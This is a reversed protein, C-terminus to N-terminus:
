LLNRSAKAMPLGVKGSIQELEWTWFNGSELQELKTNTEVWWKSTDGRTVVLVFLDCTSIGLYVIPSLADYFIKVLVWALVLFAMSGIHVGTCFWEQTYNPNIVPDGLLRIWWVPLPFVGWFGAWLYDPFHLLVTLRSIVWQFAILGNQIRAWVAIPIYDLLRGTYDFTGPIYRPCVCSIGCSQAQEQLNFVIPEFRYTIPPRLPFCYVVTTPTATPSLPHTNPNVDYNERRCRMADDFYTSLDVQRTANSATAIGCMIQGLVGVQCEAPCTADAGFPICTVLDPCLHQGQPCNNIADLFRGRHVPEDDRDQLAYPEKDDVLPLLLKRFRDFGPFTDTLPTSELTKELQDPAGHLSEYLLRRNGVWTATALLQDSPVLPRSAKKFDKFVYRIICFLDVFQYYPNITGNALNCQLGDDTEFQSPVHNRLANAFQERSTTGLNRRRPAEAPILPPVV